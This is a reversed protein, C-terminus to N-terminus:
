DFSAPQGGIPAMDVPHRAAILFTGKPPFFTVSIVEGGGAELKDMMVVLGNPGASLPVEFIGHKMPLWFIM